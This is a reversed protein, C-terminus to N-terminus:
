VMDSIESVKTTSNFTLLVGVPIAFTAIIFSFIVAKPPIIELQIFKLVEQHHLLGNERCSSRNM